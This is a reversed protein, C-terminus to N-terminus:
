SHLQRIRTCGFAQAPRKKVSTCWSHLHSHLPPPASQPLAIITTIASLIPTQLTTPAPVTGLVTFHVGDSSRHVEYYKTAGESATSWQLLAADDGYARADFQLFNLPLAILVSYEAAWGDGRGGGNTVAPVAPVAPVRTGVSGMGAGGSTGTAPVAENSVATIGGSNGGAQM